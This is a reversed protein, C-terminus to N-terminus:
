PKTKNNRVRLQCMCSGTMIRDRNTTVHFGEREWDVIGGALNYVAPFGNDMLLLAIKKSQIGVADAVILPVDTPLENLQDVIEDYPCFIIQDIDFLRGLEYEPRVDLLIAGENIVAIAERASLHSLEKPKM